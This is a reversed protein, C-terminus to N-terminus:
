MWSCTKVEYWTIIVYVSYLVIVCMYRDYLVSEKFLYDGSKKVDRM